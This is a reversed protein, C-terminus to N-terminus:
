APQPRYHNGTAGDDGTAQILRHLIARVDDGGFGFGSALERILAYEAPAIQGDAAAIMMAAHLLFEREQGQFAAALSAVDLPGSVQSFHQGIKAMGIKQGTMKQYIRAFEVLESQDVDGDALAVACMVDLAADLLQARRAGSIKTRQNTRAGSSGGRLKALLGAGLALGIVGILGYGWVKWGTGISPTAPIEAAILGIAQAEALLEQSFPYYEDVACGDEALAYGRSSRYVSIGLFTTDSVLHCLALPGNDGPLETPAVFLLREQTGGGGGRRADAPTALASTVLLAAILQKM